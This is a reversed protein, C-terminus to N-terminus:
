LWKVLNLSQRSALLENQPYMRFVYDLMGSYEIPFECQYIAIKKQNKVLKLQKIFIPNPPTASARKGFIVEVGINEPAIGDTDIKIEAMFVDGMKLKTKDTDPVKMSKLEVNDWKSRVDNKWNALEIAKRYNDKIMLRGNILLKSYYKRYYEDLMRKMTYHPAIESLSNKIDGIWDHPINKEDKKYYLPIIEDELINYITEADLEDQFQQNEYTREEKIAWGANKRYGEAWWGDLVSFNLVGNMLAKEGSTGSAELPRTPTNLWIDVGQVLLSAINMNYNEIFFIKGIFEDQKTIEIIRKILDQGAKDNPHAKGSFIIQAPMEPNNLVKSLRELNNFLLHARKYTAFRRAFGITLKSPDLSEVAKVVLKPADQRATMEESIRVKLFKILREKLEMRIKWIDESPVNHIKNWFEANSHDDQFNQEFENKYLEVFQKATWTQYHVGNTVHGIHLEEPYYGPYLSAFMERSIRGHIESVGNVEQSLKLALLSMSFKEGTNNEDYRGLGMFKKWSINLRDVYHPIYTRLMDESFSDHGAPVPTHTTFLSSAKVVESAEDFSLKNDQVLKRLREINIFAAHGENCHFIDPKINLADLLRIGGVGLLMEQVLRNENDGGYLQYTVSRDKKTNESVDTDLLFLQIRGVHVKWVRAYMTRGPLAVGILLREKNENYIPEVPLKSFDQSFNESIQEGFASLRQQFYGKRYLLGVAIMNKNSDSAQKLYDGALVGLGGSYIRLSEHLGFEMSFYSILGDDVNRTQKMYSKYSNYTDKLKVLYDKDNGLEKWREYSTNELLSIPNHCNKHWFDPDIIRFLEEADYNWSWWLNRSMDYLGNLNKPIDAKVNIRKWGPEISKTEKFEFFPYQQQKGKFLYARENSRKIAIDYAEYYNKIFEKWLANQSIKYAGERLNEIDQSNNISEELIATIESVTLTDEASRDVVFVGNQLDIQLDRVWLGFGAYNTTISPIHFAASEMPTYGWPEYYSPFVSFDFGILFDYYSINFISDMGNLYAPVFVIKVKDEPRNLLGNERIRNLTPDGIQDYLHHTLYEESIPDDFDPNTVRNLLDMRAGSQHAPIAIVGIVTKDLDKKKNLEGLSDIFIDIGKNKFEYRGSNIVMFSDDPLKQNMLGSFVKLIKNRSSEREKNFVEKEPVFSDEFGNVTIVDCSKELFKECEKETIRSVTTFCDAHQASLKELSYKSFVGFDKALRHTDFEQLKGYLDFGNGAISRGMVTAHTTFITGVQPVQDKLYLVGTGTMWEHFQAIIRDEASVNFDYFSDIVRGAAYGFLAPEIYDWQGSLSDLKYKEWFEYFIKDKESFFPTFDLLVVVPKGEINWRGVRINLGEQRAKIVWSKYLETDEIFDPNEQTEKWVDPGILIYNDKLEKVITLAKTSLVTYIGGVKNCIEWSVEFLYDTTM